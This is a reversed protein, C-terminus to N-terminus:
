GGGCVLHRLTVLYFPCWCSIRALLGHNPYASSAEDATGFLSLYADDCEVRGHREGRLARIM